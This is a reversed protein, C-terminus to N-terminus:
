EEASETKTPKSQKGNHESWSWSVDPRPSVPGDILEDATQDADGKLMKKRNNPM